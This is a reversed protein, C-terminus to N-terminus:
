CFLWLRPIWARVLCVVRFLLGLKWRLYQAVHFIGSGLEFPSHSRIFKAAHTILLLQINLRFIKHMHREWLRFVHSFLSNGPLKTGMKIADSLSHAVIFSAELVSKNGLIQMFSTKSYLTKLLVMCCNFPYGALASCNRENYCRM